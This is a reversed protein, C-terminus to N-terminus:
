YIAQLIVTGELSLYVDRQLAAGEDSLSTTYFPRTKLEYTTIRLIAMGEVLWCFVPLIAVREVLLYTTQLITM